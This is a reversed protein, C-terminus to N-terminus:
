RVFRAWGPCPGERWGSCVNPSLQLYDLIKNKNNNMIAVVIVVAAVVVVVVIDHM